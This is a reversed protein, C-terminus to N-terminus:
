SLNKQTAKYFHKHKHELVVVCKNIDSIFEKILKKREESIKERKAMYFVEKHCKYKIM